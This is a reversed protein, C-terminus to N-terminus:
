DDIIIGKSHTILKRSAALIKNTVVPQFGLDPSRQDPRSSARYDARGTILPANWSGGRRGYAGSPYTESRNFRENFRMWRFVNGTSQVQFPLDQVYRADDVAVTSGMGHYRSNQPNEDLHALKRGAPDRVTGTETGYEKTGGESAVFHYQADTPLDYQYQGESALSSLLCWAKAHFYSIGLVPQKPDSFRRNMEDYRFAPRNELRVLIQAGFIILDSPNFSGQDDYRSRGPLVPGGMLTEYDPGQKLLQTAGSQWDHELLLARDPGAIVDLSEQWEANTVPTMKMGFPALTHGM